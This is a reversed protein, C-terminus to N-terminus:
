EPVRGLEGLEIGDLEVDDLASPEVAEGLTISPKSDLLGAAKLEEIGPLDSLSDLGFHSMFEETTVWTVPRGVTQRRGKPQVWGTEVLVDLTGKSLAVGRIAEIEARTVPQHYAVIALTELAARSLKRPASTELRLRDALDPATRLTWRGSVRIVNVGRPRYLRELEAILAGVEVEPPLRLALDDESVPEAAAFLIAELLRLHQTRDDSVLRFLESGASGEPGRASM